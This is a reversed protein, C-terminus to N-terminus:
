EGETEGPMQPLRDDLHLWPIRSATWIHRTPRALGPDDLSAATVDLGDPCDAHFFSIQCGCGPCFGREGRASSRWTKLEGLTVRFRSPPVTFWTVVPAGAARQCMRCHCHAVDDIPGDVEYRVGGCLCGGAHRPASM